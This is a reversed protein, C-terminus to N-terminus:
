PPAVHQGEPAWGGLPMPWWIQDTGMTPALAPTSAHQEEARARPGDRIGAPCPITRSCGSESGEDCLGLRIPPLSSSSSGLEGEGFYMQKIVNEMQKRIESVSNKKKKEGGPTIQLRM